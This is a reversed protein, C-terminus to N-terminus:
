SSRQQKWLGGESMTWSLGWGRSWLSCFLAPEAPVGQGAGSGAQIWDACSLTM